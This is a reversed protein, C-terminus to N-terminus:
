VKEGVTALGDLKEIVKDTSADSNAVLVAHEIAADRATKPYFKLLYDANEIGKMGRTDDKGLKRVYWIAYGNSEECCYIEVSHNPGLPFEEPDTQWITKRWVHNKKSELITIM